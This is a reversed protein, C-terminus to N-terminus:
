FCKYVEDFNELKEKALAFLIVDLDNRLLQLNHSPRAIHFFEQLQQINRYAEKLGYHKLYHALILRAWTHNNYRTCRKIEKLEIKSLKM